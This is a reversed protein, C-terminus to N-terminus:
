NSTRASFPTSQADSMTCGHERLSEHAFAGCSSACTRWAMRAARRARHARVRRHRRGHRQRAARMRRSRQLSHPLAQAAPVAHPARDVGQAPGPDFQTPTTTPMIWPGNATDFERYSLGFTDGTFISTAAHDVIAQHHLAHGPTHVCEFLGARSNSASATRPSSSASRRRDAPDRRLTEFVARRRVRRSHGRHAEVPRDHAARRASARRPPARCRACSSRRRRRRSRPARPHPVALEVADRAVQRARELAALILPVATNPGTDVIAARGGSVIVHSADMQPRVYETDVATIGDAFKTLRPM